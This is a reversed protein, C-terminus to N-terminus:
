GNERSRRILANYVLTFGAVLIFVYYSVASGLGFQFNRFAANYLYMGLTLGANDTGGTGNTLVFPEDFVQIAGITATIVSFAITPLMLPITIRPLIQSGSAGDVRAAEYLDSPVSQLGALFIVFHWGTWRWVIMLIIMPKIWVTSSFWDFYVPHGVVSGWVSNILGADSSFLVRMIIATVAPAVLLPLLFVMRFYTRWVVVYENVLFALVFAISVTLVTSGLWIILTNGVAKVFSPDSWVRAYNQFGVNQIPSLGDWRHFGLYLSYLIPLLGFILFLLFYPALTLLLTRQDAAERRQLPRAKLTQQM